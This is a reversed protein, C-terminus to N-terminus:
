EDFKGIYVALSGIVATYFTRCFRITAKIPQVSVKKQRESIQLIRIRCLIASSSAPM